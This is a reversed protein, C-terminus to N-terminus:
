SSPTLEKLSNLQERLVDDTFEICLGVHYYFATLSKMSRDCNTCKYQDETRELHRNAVLKCHIRVFHILLNSKTPSGKFKCGQIPCKHLTDHEHQTDIHVKLSYKAKFTMPCHTCKYPLRDEHSKLHYHMTNQKERTENCHPCVYHGLENKQYSYVM